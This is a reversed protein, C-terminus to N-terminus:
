AANLRDGGCDPCTGRSTVAAVARRHAAPQDALDRRVYMREFRDALGEYTNGRDGGVGGDRSVKFGKGHLLTHWQEPTYDRLPLDPDFLGSRAHTQWVWSGVGWPEFRIAGDNLSRATDLFADLDLRTVAGLGQCAPCMGEPDNFSFASAEGAAPEACRSFLVRLVPLIDTATGVTSRAGGRPPRHDVVVAPTLGGLLDADPRPRRPMRDRVFWPLTEALQRDSEVALTDFALSSKGSGSVGTIAVLRHKPIAVTLDRLNHERAGTITIADARPLGNQADAGGTRDPGGPQDPQDPRDHHGLLKRHGNPHM